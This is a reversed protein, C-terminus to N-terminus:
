KPLNNLFTTTIAVADERNNLWHISKNRKFWTRQKKALVKDGHVFKESAEALTLRGALCDVFCQYGIGRVAVDDPGYKDVLERVEDVFGAALMAEVRKQIRVDLDDRDKRIGIVLTNDRLKKDAARGDLLHRPNVPDRQGDSSFTYNYIVSDVYLGTGGVMIPLKGRDLIDEICEFADKQFQAVNYTEDPDRIDLLHHPVLAQEEATPKATGINMGRYITRSDACIIEGGFKQALEIGLATKGSATEGVIVILPSTVAAM